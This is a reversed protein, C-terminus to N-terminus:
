RYTMMVKQYGALLKGFSRDTMAQILNSPDFWTQILLFISESHRM